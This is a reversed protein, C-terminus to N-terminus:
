WDLAGENWNRERRNGGMTTMQDDHINHEGQDGDEGEDNKNPEDASQYGLIDVQRRSRRPVRENAVYKVDRTLIRPQSESLPSLEVTLISMIIGKLRLEHYNMYPVNNM